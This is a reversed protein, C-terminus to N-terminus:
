ASVISALRMMIATATKTVIARLQFTVTRTSVPLIVFRLQGRIDALITTMVTMAVMLLRAMVMGAADAAEFRCARTDEDCHCGMGPRCDAAAACNPATGSGCRGGRCIEDGNCYRGDDCDANTRCTQAQAACFLSVVLILMLSWLAKMVIKM